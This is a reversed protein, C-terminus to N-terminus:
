YRVSGAVAPRSKQELGWAHEGFPCRREEAHRLFEPRFKKLFSQVPMAAADGLACITQGGINGAVQELKAVDEATGHGHELKELIGEMWATGERCPTCQGCSEEAYFKAIRALAHVMCTSDDFVIIGGSGSM